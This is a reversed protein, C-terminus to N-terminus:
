PSNPQHGTGLETLWVVTHALVITVSYNTLSIKSRFSSLIDVCIKKGGNRM